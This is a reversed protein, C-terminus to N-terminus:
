GPFSLPLDSDSFSFPIKKQLYSSPLNYTLIKRCLTKFKTQLLLNYNFSQLYHLKNLDPATSLLLSKLFAKKFFQTSNVTKDKESVLLETTTSNQLTSHATGYYGAFAFVSFFLAISLVWQSMRNKSYNTQRM